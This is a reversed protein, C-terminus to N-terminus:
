RLERVNGNVGLGMRLKKGIDLSEASISVNGITRQCRCFQRGISAMDLCRVTLRPMENRQLCIATHRGASAYEQVIVGGPEGVEHNRAMAAQNMGVGPSPCQLLRHIRFHAGRSPPSEPKRFQATPRQAFLDSAGGLGDSDDHGAISKPFEDAAHEPDTRGGNAV